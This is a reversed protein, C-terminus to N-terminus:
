QTAQLASLPVLPQPPQLGLKTNIAALNDYISQMMSQMENMIAKDSAELRAAIEASIFAQLTTTQEATFGPMPQIALQPQM